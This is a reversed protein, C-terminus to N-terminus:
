DKDSTPAGDIVGNWFAAMLANTVDTDKNTSYKIEIDSFSPFKTDDETPKFQNRNTPVAATAIQGILTAGSFALIEQRDPDESPSVSKKEGTRMAKMTEPSIRTQWAFFAMFAMIIMQGEESLTKGVSYMFAQRADTDPLDSFNVFGHCVSSGETDITALMPCPDGHDKPIEMSGMM